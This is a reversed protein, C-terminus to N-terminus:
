EADGRVFWNTKVLSYDLGQVQGDGNVDAVANTSNWNNKLVSYDLINVFNDPKIDGGLLVFAASAQGDTDLSVAERRRLHWDTKASLQATGDPVDSLVYSGAAVQTGTDNTFALALTWTKLVADGSDTAVFVVDRSFGYSASSLTSFSVTGTIQNKNILFTDTDGTENGTGDNATATIVALGNATASTVMAHYNFTGPPSEGDAVVALPNGGADLVTVAPVAPSLGCNDGATVHITVTGQVAPPAGTGLLEQGGQMASAIEVAPAEQDNVTVTQQCSSANGCADEATWTITTVGKPYPANLGLGDSRQGSISPATDCGDTATATGPNVTATCLGADTTTTIAPPCAIVPPTTDVVEITQACTSENGSGDTAKWTRTITGAQPCSGAALSDSYTIIPDPPCNDTATAAGTVSPDPNVSQTFTVDIVPAGGKKDFFTGVFAYAGNSWDTPVTPTGSFGHSYWYLYDFHNVYSRSVTNAGYTLSFSAPDFVLQFGSIAGGLNSAAYAQTTNSFTLQQGLGIRGNSLTNVAAYATDIFGFFSTLTNDPDSGGPINAAVWADYRDRAILGVFVSSNNQLSAIDVSGTVVVPGSGPAFTFLKSRDIKFPRYNGNVPHVNADPVQHTGSIRVITPGCEISTDAPCTIAPAETDNVTVKQTCTAENGARDTAKWTVITEGKPFVAPADHTISEVGALNDTVVLAGLAVSSAECAGSDTSVVVDPPCDMVPATGDVVITLSDVKSPLIPDANLDSFMTVYGNAGDPRFVVHTTGEHDKATMTIVAVKGDAATGTAGTLQVGIATDLEGSTAWSQYILETWVGGGAAVSGANFFASSYGILAQCGNVMQQLNYANMDIVVNEGPQVYLSTAEPELILLNDPQTVTATLTNTASDFTGSLVGPNASSWDVPAPWGAPQRDGLEAVLKGTVSATSWDPVYVATMQYSGKELYEAETDFGYGPALIWYTGSYIITHDDISDVTGTLAWGYQDLDTGVQPLDLSASYSTIEGWGFPTGADDHVGLPGVQMWDGPAAYTNQSYIQGSFGMNLAAGAPAAVMWVVALATLTIGSASKRM